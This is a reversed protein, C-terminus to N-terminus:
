SADGEGLAARGAAIAAQWEDDGIGEDHEADSQVMARVCEALAARAVALKRAPDPPQTRAALLAHAFALVKGNFGPDFSPTQGHYTQELGHARALEIIQERALDPPQASDAPAPPADLVEFEVIDAMVSLVARGVSAMAKARERTIDVIRARMAEAGERRAQALAADIDAAMEACEHRDARLFLAHEWSHVLAQGATPTTDSMIGAPEGAQRLGDQDMAGDDKSQM